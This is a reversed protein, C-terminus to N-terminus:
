QCSWRRNGSRARADADRQSAIGAVDSHSSPRLKLTLTLMSIMLGAPRGIGCAVESELAKTVPRNRNDVEAATLTQSTSRVAIEAVETEPALTVTPSISRFATEALDAELALRSFCLIAAPAFGVPATSPKLRGAEPNEFFCGRWACPASLADHVNQPFLLCLNVEM